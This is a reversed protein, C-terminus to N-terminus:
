PRRGVWLYGDDNGPDRDGGVEPRQRFQLPETLPHELVVTLTLACERAGPEIAHVSNALVTPGTSVVTWDGSVGSIRVGAPPYLSVAVRQGTDGRNTLHVTIKLPEGVAVTQPDRDTSIALTGDYHSEAYGADVGRVTEGPRVRLERTTYSGWTFANDRGPRTLTLQAPGAVSSAKLQFRGAPLDELTYRGDAASVAYRTVPKVSSLQVESLPPEGQDRRGDRDTDQWVVGTVTAGRIGFDAPRIGEASVLVFRVPGTTAAYEARHHSVKYLGFRLAPSTYRGDEDTVAKGAPRLRLVDYFSVEAEWAGPEGPQAAGDANRDFWVRGTVVGTPATDEAQAPMGTLSLLSVGALVVATRRLNM